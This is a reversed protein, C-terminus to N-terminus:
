RRGPTTGPSRPVYLGEREARVAALTRTRASLKALIHELHAAVTRQAVVLSRAIEENSCGDVLFGLIELERATLGRLDGPPSALVMGTLPAPLDEAVALATIRVHGAPVHAGGLPWLFATYLCGGSIAARAAVLVPSDAELLPHRELGPLVDTPGDDRLIVGATVGRVLRATTLLSRMPDIAAALTSTLRGLLHRAGPSPAERSSLLLGLHGVHCGGPGFLGVGLGEHYGAPVLYEAWTALEEAPYPLDSPSVPPCQRNLGALEIDQAMVPGGFHELIANDLDASALPTFRNHPTDALALWASDFRVVRRLAHLLAEARCPLPEGSAAIEALELAAAPDNRM